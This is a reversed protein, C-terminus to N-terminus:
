AIDVKGAGAAAGIDIVPPALAVDAILPRGKGVEQGALPDTAVDAELPGPTVVFEPVLGVPAIQGEATGPRGVLYITGPVALILSRMAVDAEMAGARGVDDAGQHFGAVYGQVPGAGVVLHEALSTLPIDGEVASAAPVLDGTQAMLIIGIQLGTAINVEVADSTVVAQQGIHGLAVNVELPGPPVVVEGALPRAAVARGKSAGTGVLYHQGRGGHATAPNLLGLRDRGDLRGQLGIGVQKGEEIAHVGLYVPDFEGVLALLTGQTIEGGGPILFTIVEGAQGAALDIFLLSKGRGPGVAGIAQRIQHKFPTLADCQLRHFRIQGFVAPDVVATAHTHGGSIDGEGRGVHTTMGDIFIAGLNSDARHFGPRLGVGIHKGLLKAGVGLYHHHLQGVVPFGTRELVQGPGPVLLAVVNGAQGILDDRLLRTEAGHARPAVGQALHVVLEVCHSSHRIPQRGGPLKVGLRQEGALLAAALALAVDEEVAGTAAVDDLGVHGLAVDVEVAGPGGVHQDLATLAAIQHETAGTKGVHQYMLAHLSLHIDIGNARGVHQYAAPVPLIQGAQQGIAVDRHLLPTAVALDHHQATVVSM